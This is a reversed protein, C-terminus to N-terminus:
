GRYHVSYDKWRPAVFDTYLDVAEKMSTEYVMLNGRFM